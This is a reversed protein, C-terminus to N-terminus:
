NQSLARDIAASFGGDTVLTGNVFVSPTFSVKLQEGAVQDQRVQSKYKGSNYCQNFSATDLGIKEAYAKLRRDSFDGVEEGTWNAYLIDHYEWFKNQDAACYAASAAADSEPGIVKFPHYTFYVKGTSVYENIILPESQEAFSKCAPCQFDSYVDIKVPANPDGMALGDAQPRPNTAPVTIEGISQLNPIIIIGAVLLAAVIILGVVVTQNRKRANDRQRRFEEKRGM